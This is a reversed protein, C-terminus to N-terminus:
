TSWFFLKQRWIIKVAFYDKAISITNLIQRLKELSAIIFTEFYSHKLPQFVTNETTKYATPYPNKHLTSNVSIDRWCHVIVPPNPLGPVPIWAAAIYRRSCFRNRPLLLTYLEWRGQFPISNVDIIQPYYTQSWRQQSHWSHCLFKGM